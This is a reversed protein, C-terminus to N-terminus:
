GVVEVGGTVTFAGSASADGEIDMGDQSVAGEADMSMSGELTFSTLQHARLDFQGSGEVTLTMSMSAEASDPMGETDEPDALDVIVDM